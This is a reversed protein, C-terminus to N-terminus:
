GRCGSVDLVLNRGVQWAGVTIGGEGFLWPCGVLEPGLEGVQGLHLARPPFFALDRTGDIM